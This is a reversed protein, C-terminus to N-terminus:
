NDYFILNCKLTVFFVKLMDLALQHAPPYDSELSLM